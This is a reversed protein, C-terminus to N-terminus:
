CRISCIHHTFIQEEAVGYGAAISDGIVVIRPRKSSELSFEPGRFGNSNIRIERGAWPLRTSPVFEYDIGPVDSKRFAIYESPDVGALAKLRIAIEVVCMVILISGCALTLRQAVEKKRM